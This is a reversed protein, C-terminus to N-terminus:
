NSETRLTWCMFIGDKEFSVSRLEAASAILERARGTFFYLHFRTYEYQYEFCPTAHSMLSAPRLSVAMRRLSAIPYRLHELVNNSFIGDFSADGIEAWSRLVYPHVSPTAAQHPEFSWVDWGQRRLLETTESWKGSGFNLYRGSPVPNLAYFARLEDTTSDGELYARYHLEYEEALEGDTLALMKAPGFIVGCSPCRHRILEGGGFACRSAFVEFSEVQSEHGCLACVLTSGETIHKAILDAIRWSQRIGDRLLEGRLNDLALRLEDVGLTTNTYPQGISLHPNNEAAIQELRALTAERVLRIGIRRLVANVSRAVLRQM